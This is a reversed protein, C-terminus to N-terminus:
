LVERNESSFSVYYIEKIKEIAVPAGYYEEIISYISYKKCNANRM